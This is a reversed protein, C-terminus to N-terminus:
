TEHDGAGAEHVMTILLELLATTANTSSPTLSADATPPNARSLRLRKSPSLVSYSMPQIPMMYISTERPGVTVLARERTDNTMETSNYYTPEITVKESTTPTHWSIGCLVWWVAIYVM